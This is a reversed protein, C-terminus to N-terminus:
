ASAAPAPERARVELGVASALMDLALAVRESRVRYYRENARRENVLLGAERLLRLHHSVTPGTVHFHAAIDCVRVEGGPCQAVISVIRLRIPDSLVKFVEAFDLAQDSTLADQLPVCPCCCAHDAACTTAPADPDTM